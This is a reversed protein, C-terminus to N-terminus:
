VASLKVLDHAALTMTLDLFACSKESSSRIERELWLLVSPRLHLHEEDLTPVPGGVEATVSGLM